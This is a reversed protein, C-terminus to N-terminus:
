IKKINYNRRKFLFAYYIWFRRVIGSLIRFVSKDLFSRKRFYALDIFTFMSKLVDEREQKGCEKQTNTIGNMNFCCVDVNIGKFVADELCIMQLWFKWDSVMKLSEDYPYKRLLNTRIFTAQHCISDKIFHKISYSKRYREYCILKNNDDVFFANGNYIDCENLLSRSVNYLVNKDVFCDGANMFICFDGTALSIGKNMANYIGSDPESIWKTIKNDYKKIIDVTGDLSNGDVIIYEFDNFEQEVVSIITNEINNLANFSITIVSIKM